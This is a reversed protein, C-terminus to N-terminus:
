IVSVVGGIVKYANTNNVFIKNGNPAVIEAHDDDSHFRVTGDANRLITGRGHAPDFGQFDLINFGASNQLYFDGGTGLLIKLVPVTTSVSKKFIFIGYLNSQQGITAWCEPDTPDNTIIQAISALLGGISVTGGIQVDANNLM